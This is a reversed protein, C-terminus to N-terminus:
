LARVLILSINDRGGADLADLLLQDVCEQAGLDTRALRAAIHRDDLELTLGDSCVLLQMGRQLTGTRSTDRLAADPTVGLAQVTAGRTAAGTADGACALCQLVGDLYTYIRSDGVWAADFAGDGVRLAALTSGAPQGSRAHRHIAAGAARVGDALPRDARVSAVLTDRALASAVDGGADRMGDAVLFLGLGADAWYTDENRSRVLGAHSAHGYEIM